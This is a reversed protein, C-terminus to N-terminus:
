HGQCINKIDNLQASNNLLTSDLYKALETKNM